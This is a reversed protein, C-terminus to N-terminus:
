TRRTNEDTVDPPANEIPEGTDWDYWEDPESEEDPELGIPEGTHGDYWEHPEPVNVEQEYGFHKINM